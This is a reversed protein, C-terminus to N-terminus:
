VGWVAIRMQGLVRGGGCGFYISFFCCVEWLENVLGSGGRLGGQSKWLSFDLSFCSYAPQIM